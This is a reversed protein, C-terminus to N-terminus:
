NVLKMPRLMVVARTQFNLRYIKFDGLVFYLNNGNKVPYSILYSNPVTTAGNVVAFQNLNNSISEHLKNYELVFVKGNAKCIIKHQSGQFLGLSTYSNTDWSYRYIGPLNYGVVLISDNLPISCNSQTPLPMSSVSSWTNSLLNYKHAESHIISGNHGGFTYIDNGVYSSLGSYSNTKWSPLKTLIKTNTDIIYSIDTYSNGCRGSYYFFADQSIKCFAGFCTLNEPINCLYSTDSDSFLNITILKKSNDTFFSIQPNDNEENFDIGIFNQIASIKKDHEITLKELQNKFDINEEKLTKIKMEFDLDFLMESARKDLEECIKNPDTLYKMLFVECESYNKKKVLRDKLSILDISSEILQENKRIYELDRLANTVIISINERTKQSINERMLRLQRLSINCQAIMIQKDGLTIETFNKIISHNIGKQTHENLHNSCIFTYEENCKCIYEPDQNCGQYQCIDAEM